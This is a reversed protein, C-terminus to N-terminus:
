LIQYKRKIQIWIVAIMKRRYKFNPMLAIIATVQQMNITLGICSNRPFRIDSFELDM